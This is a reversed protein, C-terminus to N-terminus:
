TGGLAKPTIPPTWTGGLAKPIPLPTWTGGLAKPAIGGSRPSAESRDPVARGCCSRSRRPQPRATPSGQPRQDWAPRRGRANEAISLRGRGRVARRPDVSGTPPQARRSGHGSVGRRSSRGAARSRPHWGHSALLGSGLGTGWCRQPGWPPSARGQPSRPAPAPERWGQPVRGMGRPHLRRGKSSNNTSIPPFAAGVRPEESARTSLRRSWAALRVGARLENTFSM